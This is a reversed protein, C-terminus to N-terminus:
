SVSPEYKQTLVKIMLEEHNTVVESYGGGWDSYSMMFVQKLSEVTSAKEYHQKKALPLYNSLKSNNSRSILCLNGFRDVDAMKEAGGLPHQPYYHEVSTRFTFNFGNLRLRNNVYDMNVNEFTEGADLRKWLQYDLRNFIFNQVNTAQELHSKDLKKPLRPSEFTLKYYDIPENDQFIGFRGYFFKDSLEEMFELYGAEDVKVKLDDEDCEWFLHNLAANLWHKYVLAPFSVHFMSQIMILTKNMDGASNNYNFSSEYPTLSKLSWGEDNERKIIYRDYLLRCLLLDLIFEDPTLKNEGKRAFHQGFTDLLRKDDLPVDEQTTVRLVHLLFNSFNIITSFTGAEETKPKYVEDKLKPEAIIDALTQQEHTPSAVALKECLEEFDYSYRDWKKGFIKERVKSDVGLQVYRNMDSCADWIKAFATRHQDTDLKEMMRAKLVEHKELQEGRNNMIEFYHNLDTDAPVVVRLIKVCELLYKTFAAVKDKERSLYRYAVEYASRITREEPEDGARHPDKFLKRLTQDSKPRSDFGLNIHDVKGLDQEFENKLVALLISLTTHRQQGDITEFEGNERRYAVLSGIYYDSTSNQMAVDMVDQLLQEVEPEGWAYNRQYIPIVYTQECFLQSVSLEEIEKNELSTM